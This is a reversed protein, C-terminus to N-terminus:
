RRRGLGFSLSRGNERLVKRNVPDMLYDITRAFEKSDYGAVTGIGLKRVFRSAATEESGLVLTPIQAGVLAFILRSPLSLRSFAVNPDDPGLSGSPVIMLPYRKLRELLEADPM